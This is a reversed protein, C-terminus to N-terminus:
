ESDFTRKLWNATETVSHHSETPQELMELVVWGHYESRNISQSVEVYDIASTLPSALNPASIHIHIPLHSELATASNIGVMDLCGTDIQSGIFSSDILKELRNVESYTTLYDAGYQPANPELALRLGNSKLSPEAGNFFESAIVDAEEQHLQGRLRNKPSGFVAIKADLVSAVEFMQNLKMYIQSWNSRQLIQVDPLGYLLSQIGSVQIGMDNLKGNLAKAKVLTEKSLNGWIKTPAIEIGCIGIDRLKELEVFFEDNNLCLNSISLRSM